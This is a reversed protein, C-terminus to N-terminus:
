QLENEPNNFLQDLHSKPFYVDADGVADSPDTLSMGEEYVDDINDQSIMQPMVVFQNIKPGQGALIRRGVEGFTEGMHFGPTSNGFFPYDPNEKAYAVTGNSSGGDAIVAPERGSQEFAQLTGLGMVGSQFVADVGAPTTALFQIVAQQAVSNQYFGSVEAVEQVDPCLEMAAEFGATADNDQAIGPVGHVQLVTGEGGIADLVSAGLDMAILVNNMGVSVAYESDTANHMSVVPVGAEGAADVLEVAADAAIPGFFIIDPKQALVQQFQQLQVPVDQQTPPALDAVVEIGAEDLASVLGDHLNTQFPNSLPNMVIGATYPGSHDPSWDAWPSPMVEYPFGNYYAALDPFEILLEDPDNAGLDPVSGCEGTAETADAKASPGAVTGGGTCGALTIVALASIVGLAARSIPGRLVPQTTM